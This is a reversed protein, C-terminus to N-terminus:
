GDLARFTMHLNEKEMGEVVVSTLSKNNKGLTKSPERLIGHSEVGIKWEKRHMVILNIM